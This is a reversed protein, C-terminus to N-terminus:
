FRMASGGVQVQGRDAVSAFRIASGGVHVKGADKTSTATQSPKTAVTTTKVTKSM